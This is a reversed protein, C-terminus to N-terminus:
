RPNPRIPMGDCDGDDHFTCTTCLDLPPSPPYHTVGGGCACCMDNASFDDDDYGGCWAPTGADTDLDM